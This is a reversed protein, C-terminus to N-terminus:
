RFLGQTRSTCPSTTLDRFFSFPSRRFSLSRSVTFRRTRRSDSGCYRFPCFPLESTPQTSDFSRLYTELLTPLQQISLSSSSFPPCSPPRLNSRSVSQHETSVPIGSMNRITTSLPSDLELSAVSSSPFSSPPSPFCNRDSRFRRRPFAFLRRSSSCVMLGSPGAKFHHIGQYIAPFLIFTLYLIGYIVSMYLTIAALM